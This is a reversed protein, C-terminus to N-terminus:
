HNISVQLIRKRIRRNQTRETFVFRYDGIFGPGPQWYFIGNKSDLTSGIPLKDRRVDLERYGTWKGQTVRKRLHIEIREMPKLKINIIGNDDPERIVPTKESQKPFGKLLLVGSSDGPLLDNLSRDTVQSVGTSPLHAAQHPIRYNHPRAGSNNITFYRSGIGDTNGNDDTATWQIIHVDNSYTTTDLYFYGVAGSSNAYTSFLEAIDQRYLNYTPNGLNIGDVYVHITSGDTPIRNPQPTLVWGWNIFADGSAIGGQTPTEIAGFPNVAGANNVIITKAGLTAQQGSSDTAVAVIIFTGNGEGPLFNTLMMYGWGAKNNNPYGPFADEIDSRAGEVFVADGIYVPQNVDNNERRYIKVTEVAADDL